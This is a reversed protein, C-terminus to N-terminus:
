NVEEDYDDDYSAMEACCSCTFYGNNDTEGGDVTIDIEEGCVNCVEIYVEEITEM